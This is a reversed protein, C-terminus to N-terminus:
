IEDNAQSLQSKRRLHCVKVLQHDEITWAVSEDPIIIANTLNLYSLNFLHIRLSCSTWTAKLIRMVVHLRATLCMNPFFVNQELM